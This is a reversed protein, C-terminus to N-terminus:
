DSLREIMIAGRVSDLYASVADFGTALLRGTADYLRWDTTLEFRLAMPETDPKRKPM